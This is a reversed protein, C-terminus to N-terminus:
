VYNIYSVLHIDFEDRRGIFNDVLDYIKDTFFLFPVVFIPEHTRHIISKTDCINSQREIASHGAPINKEVAWLRSLRM